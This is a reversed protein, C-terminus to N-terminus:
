TQELIALYYDITRASAEDNRVAIVDGSELYIHVSSADYLGNVGNSTSLDELEYGNIMITVGSSYSTYGFRWMMLRASTDAPVTYLASSTNGSALSAVQGSATKATVTIAM